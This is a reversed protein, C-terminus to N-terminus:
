YSKMPKNVKGLDLRYRLLDISEVEGDDYFIRM